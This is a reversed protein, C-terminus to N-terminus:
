IPLVGTTRAAAFYGNLAAAAHDSLQIFVRRADCDDNKRELLGRETLAKIWRLATTPPVAAAICLSSVAVRSQELRAAALDLLMDWAPDAFLEPSFFRERLRRARLIARVEPVTVADDAQLDNSLNAAGHGVLGETATHAILGTPLEILTRAIRAIEDSLRQLRLGEESPIDNLRGTSGPSRALVKALALHLELDDDGIVTEADPCKWLVTDLNDSGTRIIMQRRAPTGHSSASQDITALRELEDPLWASKPDVGRTDLVVFDSLNARPLCEEFIRDHLVHVGSARVISGLEELRGRDGALLTASRSFENFDNMSMTLMKEVTEPLSAFM